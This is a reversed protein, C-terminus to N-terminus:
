DTGEETPDKDICYKKYAKQIDGPEYKKELKQALKAAITATNDKLDAATTDLWVTYEEKTNPPDDADRNTSATTCFLTRYVKKLKWDDQNHSAKPTIQADCTDKCRQLLHNGTDIRGSVTHFNGFQDQCKQYCAGVGSAQSETITEKQSEYLAFGGGVVIIALAIIGIKTKLPIKRFGKAM